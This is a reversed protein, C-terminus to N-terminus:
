LAPNRVSPKEALRVTWEARSTREVLLHPEDEIVIREALALSPHLM